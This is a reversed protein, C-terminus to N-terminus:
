LRCQKVFIQGGHPIRAAPLNKEHLSDHFKIKYKKIDNKEQGRAKQSEHMKPVFFWDGVRNEALGGLFVVGLVPSHEM